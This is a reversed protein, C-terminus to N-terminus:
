IKKVIADLVIKILGKIFSHPKIIESLREGIAYYINIFMRGFAHQRLKVDRWIRLKQVEACNIDEYVVTAIFCSTKTARVTLLLEEDSKDHLHIAEPNNRVMQMITKEQQTPGLIDDIPYLKLLRGREKILRSIFRQSNTNTLISFTKPKKAKTDWFTIILVNSEEYKNGIGSMGGIIAGLPGLIITGIVARGVVTKDKRIESGKMEEISIIQLYNIDLIPMYLAGAIRLGNDHLLLTLNGTNIFDDNNGSNEYYGKIAADYTWNVIQHGISLDNPLIPYKLKREVKNLKINFSDLPMGCNPCSVAKDSIEKSCEPCKILSM